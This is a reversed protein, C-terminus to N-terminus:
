KSDRLAKQMASQTDRIGREFEKLMQSKDRLDRKDTASDRLIDGNKVITEQAAALEQELHPIKEVLRRATDLESELKKVSKLADKYDRSIQGQAKVKTELEAVETSLLQAQASFETLADSLEQPNTVYGNKISRPTIKM